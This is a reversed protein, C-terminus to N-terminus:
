KEKKNKKESPLTGLNGLDGCIQRSKNKWIAMFPIKLGTLKVSMEEVEEAIRNQAVNNFELWDCLTSSAYHVSISRRSNKTMNTGSGHILLPHFFVTDGPEMELHVRKRIMTNIDTNNPLNISHYAKNVLGQWKPYDHELLSGVPASKHTGPIVCLCGNLRTCPQLATWSCVIFQSPGFPFYWQDQHLPHRSTLFGTDPPKNISMFHMARVADGCFAKVYSTLNDNCAYQWFIPDYSWDQFKTVVNPDNRAERNVNKLSVDRMIAMKKFTEKPNEMLTDFHNYFMEIEKQKLLKPIVIYGNEEYFDRQKQTLVKDAFDDITFYHKSKNISKSFDNNCHNSQLIPAVNNNEDLSDLHSLIKQLRFM